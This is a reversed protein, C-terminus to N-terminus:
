VPVTKELKTSGSGHPDANFKTPDIRIWTPLFLGCFLFFNIFKSSTRKEPRVAEGAAQADKM